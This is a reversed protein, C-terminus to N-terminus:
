ARLVSASRARRTSESDTELSRAPPRFDGDMIIGRATAPIIARTVTPLVIIMLVAAVTPM